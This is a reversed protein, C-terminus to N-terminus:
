AANAGEQISLRVSAVGPLLFDGRYLFEETVHPGDDDHELVNLTHNDFRTDPTSGEGSIALVGTQQALGAMHRAIIPHIGHHAALAELWSGTLPLGSEVGTELTRFTSLAIAAFESVGPRSPTAVAHGPKGRIWVWALLAEGLSFYGHRAFDAIPAGPDDYSVRGRQFLYESFARYSAVRQLMAHASQADLREFSAALEALEPSASIRGNGSDLFGGSRLFNIYRRAQNWTRVGIAKVADDNAFVKARALKAIFEVLRNTSFNYSPPRGSDETAPRQTGASADADEKPANAAGQSAALDPTAGRFPAVDASLEVWILDERAHDTQWPQGEPMSDMVVFRGTRTDELRSSGFSWALEWLVETLGVTVMGAHFPHFLSGTLTSGLVDPASRAQFFWVDIGESLAMRAMGQDSTVLATPHDPRVDRRFRRATEVILRDAFSRVVAQLHLAKDEPDSGATVVGRLPDAGLDGRDLEVDPEFELRMLARQGGQSLLRKNLSAPRRKPSETKAFKVGNLFNDAQMCIEMHVIAPVKIRAAPSLFRSVFALAGQQVATTDPIVTIPRSLPMSVLACPDFVPYQLLTRRAVDQLGQRFYKKIKEHDDPALSSPGLEGDIQSELDGESVVRWEFGGFDIAREANYDAEDPDTPATNETTFLSIDGLRIWAGPFCTGENVALQFVTSRDWRSAIAAAAESKSMLTM